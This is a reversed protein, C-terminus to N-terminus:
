LLTFINFVEKIIARLTSMLWVKKLYLSLETRDYLSYRLIITFDWFYFSSLISHM